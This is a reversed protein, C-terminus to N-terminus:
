RNQSSAAAGKYVLQDGYDREAIRISGQTPEENGPSYDYDPVYLHCYMCYFEAYGNNKRSEIEHHTMIFDHERSTCFPEATHTRLYWSNNFQRVILKADEENDLRLQTVRNTDLNLINWVIAPVAINQRKIM